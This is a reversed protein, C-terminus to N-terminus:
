DGEPARTPVSRSGSAGRYFWYKTLEAAAVYALTIIVLTGVVTLPIPVFGLAGVAPLYPIIPTLVALILTSVLLVTGPRSKFFPRRTRVVLAIALETLLSEVFWATQFVEPSAHFIWLLAGFCLLDFLSSLLGFEIMFRAIFRMDWRRPREIMERDVNDGAMGVAPIDSLFNNLLIQSATLPLFPLFLSALAMSVMNGLNASTTTLVYKLTNAFTRRGEEVGRRIVDLDRELLVFDAAERAVDVAQEVSLSTDAAHMAPADNIGDGLFGVVRGARKLARIIREKQNPDLEVFLDTRPAERWLAADDLQEIQSGTLVHATSLGVLGAVHEAILKADGTILKITIGLRRLGDIAQSAGEKPRDLFTLFGAFRLEQECDRGYKERRELRKTAVALVRIGGRGWEGYREELAARAQRDLASGDALCACADLVEHFAGKTVLLVEGGREVIVSVRRRVFDFPIEALKSFKGLDPGCANMIADDLPSALGTELAANIAGLEIVAQAKAGHADYGGELSIVGETLTGTKDTCLVDMSGLNEIANLHRVLVGRSALMQAGRALNVSLIAPLLEPSLGVALAVAFLLTEVVPRGALMHAVFVVLVMVLMAVTLLYGFRMVGRDFETQPARRQLHKAIAGFQTGGGTAVVVCRLTGSRVNTGLYVSNSRKSLPTDAPLVGPGKEVPFSEGTLASESVFCDAAEIVQADAPVLSGAALLMVDGPVVEDIPLWQEQGDRLAKTRTKIRANLAAAATHASYERRYGILASAGLIVSVILADTLEGTAAAIIAAFLLLLLLPSAFQRLLIDLRSMTRSARLENRGYQRLRREAEDSSLGSAGTGLQKCVQDVPQNWCERLAIRSAPAEPAFMRRALYIGPVMPLWFSLGRFLLTASLAVPLPVGILQLTLVSSTEFTGLGGPLVGLTRFLNSVMFSAFVAIVSSTHGLAAILAWVTAADLLVIAAQYAGSELLVRRNRALQPDSEALSQVIPRLLRTRSLANTFHGSTGAFKFLVFVMAACGALFALAAATVVGRVAVPMPLLMLATLLLVAYMAFYSVLSIVVIAMVSPRAMGRQEFYKSVAATGSIGASPLAQDIFLKALSLRFATRVSLPFAAPRAVVRWIQGQAVYTALQLLVAVILWSPRAQTAIRAIEETESFHLAAVSVGVVLAIGLGWTLWRSSGTGAAADAM